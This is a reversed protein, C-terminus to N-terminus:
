SDEPIKDTRNKSTLLPNTGHSDPDLTLRLCRLLFMPEYESADIRHDAYVNSADYKSHDRIVMQSSDRWTYV